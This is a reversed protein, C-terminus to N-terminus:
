DSKRKCYIQLTVHSQLFSMVSKRLVNRKVCTCVKCVGKGTRLVAYVTKFM